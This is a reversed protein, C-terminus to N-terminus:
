EQVKKGISLTVFGIAFDHYKYGDEVVSSYDILWTDFHTEFEFKFM